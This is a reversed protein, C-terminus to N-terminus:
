VHARGIQEEVAAQVAAEDLTDDERLLERVLRRVESGLVARTVELKSDHLLDDWDRRDARLERDIAALSAAGDPDVLLRDIAALAEYGTTGDVPWNPPLDEDKELIKEVVLYGSEALDSLMVLYQRPHRLGDPFHM